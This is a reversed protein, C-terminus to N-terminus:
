YDETEESENPIANVAALLLEMDSASPPVGETPYYQTSDGFDCVISDNADFIAGVADNKGPAWTWPRPSTRM